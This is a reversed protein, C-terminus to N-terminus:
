SIKTQGGTCNPPRGGPPGVGGRVLRPKPRQLPGRERTETLVESRGPATLHARITRPAAFGHCRPGNQFMSRFPFPAPTEPTTGRAPNRPLAGLVKGRANKARPMWGHRSRETLGFNAFDEFAWAIM